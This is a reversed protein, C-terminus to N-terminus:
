EQASKQTSNAFSVHARRSVGNLIIKTLFSKKYFVIKHLILKIKKVRGTYGRPYLIIRQYLIIIFEQTGRKSFHLKKRGKPCVVAM